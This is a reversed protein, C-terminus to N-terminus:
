RPFRIFVRSRRLLVPSALSSLRSRFRQLTSDFQHTSISHVFASLGCNPRCYYISEFVQIKVKRCILFITFISCVTLFIYFSKASKPEFQFTAFITCSQSFNYVTLITFFSIEQLFSQSLIHRIHVTKDHSADLFSCLLFLM